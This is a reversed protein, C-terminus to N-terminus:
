PKTESDGGTSRGYYMETAQKLTGDAKAWMQQISIAPLAQYTRGTIQITRPMPSLDYKALGSAVEPSAPGTGFLVPIEGRWMDDHAEIKMQWLTASFKYAALSEEYLTLLKKDLDNMQHDRAISIETSLGQLLEGFKAYTVGPGTAGQIAKSARYVPEFTPQTITPPAAAPPDLPKSCGFAALLAIAPLSFRLNM